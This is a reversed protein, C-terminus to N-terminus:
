GTPIAPSTLPPTTITFSLQATGDNRLFFRQPVPVKDEVSEIRVVDTEPSPLVSTSVFLLPTGEGGPDDPDDPEGCGIAVLTLVLSMGARHWRM